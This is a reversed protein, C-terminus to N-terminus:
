KGPPPLPTAGAPVAGPSNNAVNVVQTVGTPVGVPASEYAPTAYSVYSCPYYCCDQPYWYYWCCTYPCYYTYCGYKGWWCRYTWQHHDKGKYFYGGKFSTGYKTHYSNTHYNSTHYNSMHYSNSM